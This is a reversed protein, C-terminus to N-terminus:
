SQSPPAPAGGATAPLEVQAGSGTLSIKSMGLRWHKVLNTPPALCYKPLDYKFGQLPFRLVHLM